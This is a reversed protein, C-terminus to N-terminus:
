RLALGASAGHQDERERGVRAARRFDIIRHGVHHLLFQELHLAHAVHFQAPRRQGRHPDLDVRQRQRAGADRQFVHAGRQLRFAGVARAAHEIGALATELDIGVLGPAVGGIISVTIAQRL